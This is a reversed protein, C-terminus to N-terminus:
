RNQSRGRGRDERRPSPNRLRKDERARQNQVEQLNVKRGNNNKNIDKKEDLFHVLKCNKIGKEIM